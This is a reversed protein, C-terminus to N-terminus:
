DFIKNFDGVDKFLYSFGPNVKDTDHHKKDASHQNVTKSSKGGRIMNKAGYKPFESSECVEFLLKRAEMDETLFNFVKLETLVSQMAMLLELPKPYALTSFGLYQQSVLKCINHYMPQEWNFLTRVDDESYFLSLDKSLRGKISVIESPKRYHWDLSTNKDM